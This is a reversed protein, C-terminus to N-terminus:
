NNKGRALKKHEHWKEVEVQTPRAGPENGGRIPDQGERRQLTFIHRQRPNGPPDVVKFGKVDYLGDYRFGISPKWSGKTMQSSRILRVPKGNNVNELLLQTKESPTGDSSDTGCYLVHDGHDEDPYDHGGSMIVSFAGEGARGCIGGQSVGHAGDRLATLQTPWWQGNLLHGDGHFHANLKKDYNPMIKDSGGNSTTGVQIGRMLHTEFDKRCWKNYLEEADSKIDYAWPVEGSFELDFIQAIGNEGHLMNNNRLLKEDVGEFALQHLTQRAKNQAEKPDENMEHEKKARTIYGKLAQLLREAGGADRTRKKDKKLAQYWEPGNKRDQVAPSQPSQPSAMPARAKKPIRGTSNSDPANPDVELKRKSPISAKTSVIPVPAKSVSAAPANKSVGPASVEILDDETATEQITQTQNQHNARKSLGADARGQPQKRAGWGALANTQGSFGTGSGPRVAIEKKVEGQESRLLANAPPPGKAIDAGESVDERSQRETEAKEHRQRRIAAENAEAQECATQENGSDERAAREKEEAARMRRHTNDHAERM